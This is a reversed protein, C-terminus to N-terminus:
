FLLFCSAEISYISLFFPFLRSSSTCSSNDSSDERISTLALALLGYYDLGSKLPVTGWGDKDGALGQFSKSQYFPNLLWQPSSWMESPFISTVHLYLLISFVFCPHISCPSTTTFSSSPSNTNNHPLLPPYPPSSFAPLCPSSPVPSSLLQPVSPDTYVRCPTLTHSMSGMVPKEDLVCDCLYLVAIYFKWWVSRVDVYMSVDASWSGGAVGESWADDSNWHVTDTTPPQATNNHIPNSWMRWVRQKDGPSGFAGDVSRWWEM